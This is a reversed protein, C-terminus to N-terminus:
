NCVAEMKIIKKKRGDYKYQSTGHIIIHTKILKLRDEDSMRSFKVHNGIENLNYIKKKSM